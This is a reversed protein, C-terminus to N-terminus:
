VWVQGQRWMDVSYVVAASYAAEDNGDSSPAYVAIIAAVTTCAHGVLPITVQGQVYGYLILRYWHDFGDAWSRMRAYGGRALDICPRDAICRENGPSLTVRAEGTTGFDSEHQFFALAYVPDIGYKVGLDYIVPGLGAAPSHYAYLVRDIFAASVSPPGVVSYSGGQTTSVHGLYLVATVSPTHSSVVAGVSLWVVWLMVGLMVALVGIWVNRMHGGREGM